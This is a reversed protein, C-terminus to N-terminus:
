ANKGNPTLAVSGSPEAPELIGEDEQLCIHITRFEDSVSSSVLKHVTRKVWNSWQPGLTDKEAEAIKKVTKLQM